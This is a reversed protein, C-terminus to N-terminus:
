THGDQLTEVTTVIPGIELLKGMQILSHHVPIQIKLVIWGPLRLSLLSHM